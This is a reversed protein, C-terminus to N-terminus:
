GIRVPRVNHKTPRIAASFSVQTIEEHLAADQRWGVSVQQQELPPAGLFQRGDAIGLVAFQQLEEDGPVDFSTEVAPSATVREGAAVGLLGAVLDVKRNGEEGVEGLMSPGKGVACLGLDIGPVCAAVGGSAERM